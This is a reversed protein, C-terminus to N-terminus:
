HLLGDNLDQAMLAHMDCWFLPDILLTCCLIGLLSRTIPLYQDYSRLNHLISLAFTLQLLIKTM